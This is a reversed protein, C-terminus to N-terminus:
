SLRFKRVADRIEDFSSRQICQGAVDFHFHQQFTEFDRLGLRLSMNPNITGVQVKYACNMGDYQECVMPRKSTGYANCGGSDTSMLNRCRSHVFVSMGETTM